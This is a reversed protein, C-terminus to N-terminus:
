DLGEIRGKPSTYDEAEFNFAKLNFLVVPKVSQGHRFGNPVQMTTNMGPEGKDM